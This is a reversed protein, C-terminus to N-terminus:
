QSHLARAVRTLIALASPLDWTQKHRDGTTNSVVRIELFDRASGRLRMLAHAIAAGEMAEAIAGTRHAIDRALADTGSCTSITAIPGILVNTDLADELRERTSQILSHDACVGSCARGAEHHAGAGPWPPFGATAMDEYGRPTLIGEDAYLSSSAIIISGIPHAPHGAAGALAGCVGLNIVLPTDGTDGALCTITCGAANVKGVGSRVLRWNNKSPNTPRWDWNPEPIDLGQAIARSEAPAAAICLIGPAADISPDRM